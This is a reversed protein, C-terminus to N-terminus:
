WGLLNDELNRRMLDRANIVPKMFRDLDDIGIRPCATNIVGDVPLNDIADPSLEDGDVIVFDKNLEKLVSQAEMALDMRRQGPKRTVVIAVRKSELVRQTNSVKLLLTKRYIPEIDEIVQRFVDVLYVKTSPKLLKFTLPYFYGGGVFFVTGPIPYGIFCGTIASPALKANLAHSLKEAYLKYPLSYAIIFDKKPLDKFKGILPKILEEHPKYYAPSFIVTEGGGLRVMSVEGHESFERIGYNQDIIRKINPPLAHGVHLVVDYDKTVLFDCAGWISRASLIANLGNNLLYKVLEFGLERMGLPVEVLVRAGKRMLELVDEIPVLFGAMEM